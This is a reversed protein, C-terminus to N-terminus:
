AAARGPSRLTLALDVDEATPSSRGALDASSWALRLTRDYGRLTLMGHDLARDIM